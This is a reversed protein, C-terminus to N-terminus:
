EGSIREIRAEKYEEDLGLLKIARIVNSASSIGLERATATLNWDQRKLEKLLARRQAEHAAARGIEAFTPRDEAEPEKPKKTKTTAMATMM